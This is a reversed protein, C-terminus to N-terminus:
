EAYNYTITYNGTEIDWNLGKSIENWEKETGCYNINALNSCKGFAEKEISIVNIGITVSELNECSSFCLPGIVRVGEPIVLHSLNCGSFANGAIVVTDKHITYTTFINKDLPAVYMLYPNTTSGIYKGNQYRTYKLQTCDYFISRGISTLNNSLTVSTLRSCKFFVSSGLHTVSDPITISTINAESFASDGISIVGYPINM